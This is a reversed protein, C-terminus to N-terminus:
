IKAPCGQPFADKRVMLEHRDAGGANTFDVSGCPWWLAASNMGYMYDMYGLQSDSLFLAAPKQALCAVARQDMTLAAFARGNVLGDIDCIQAQSFYGIFGIDASLIRSGSLRNLPSARMVNLTQTRGRFIHLARPLEAIWAICFLLPVAVRWRVSPLPRSEMGTLNWVTSFLLAWFVYRVGQMQQGKLAALLILVPFALNAVVACRDRTALCASVLWVLLLGLGFSASAAIVHVTSAIVIWFSLGVKALATDPLVYGMLLRITGLSVASGVALALGRAYDRQLLLLIVGIGALLTLDVRTASVIMALVGLLAPPWRRRIGLAVSCALLGVLGTEMGDTLWRVAFPGSLALLVAAFGVAAASRRYRWLLQSVLGLLTAYMILSVAKPLLPSVDIFGLVALIGVYLLSSTGYTPRDGNFTIFHHARLMEAYRLHILADDLMSDRSTWLLWVVWVTLGLVALSWKKM